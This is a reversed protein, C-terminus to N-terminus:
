FSIGTKRLYKNVHFSLVSKPNLAYDELGPKIRSLSSNLISKFKLCKSNNM